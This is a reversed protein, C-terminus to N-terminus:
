AYIICWCYLSMGSMPVAVLIITNKGQIREVVLEHVTDILEKDENQILGSTCTLETYLSLVSACAGPLDVFAMDTYGPDKLNVLIANKSFKLRSPDEFRIEDASKNKFFEKSRHPSLITAQARRIWLEVDAKDTLVPSYAETVPDIRHGKADHDFRLSILCSWTTAGSFLRCEM